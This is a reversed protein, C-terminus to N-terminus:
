DTRDEGLGGIGDDSAGGTFYKQVNDYVIRAAAEDGVELGAVDGYVFIADTLVHPREPQDRAAFDAPVVFLLCGFRL